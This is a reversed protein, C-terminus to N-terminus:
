IWRRVKKKYTLYKSGFKKELYREERKIVGLQIILLPIPWILIIWAANSFFAISFYFITLSLYMPNRTIKYPGKEIIKLAPKHIDINTGENIFTKVAWTGLIIGILLLLSGIGWTFPYSLLQIPYVHQLILGSLLPIPYVLAPSAIAGSKDSMTYM